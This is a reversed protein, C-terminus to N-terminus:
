PSPKPLALTLVIETGVGPQSRIALTGGVEAMRSRMNSLGNRESFQPDVAVFGIGNDRITVTLVGHDHQMIVHVENARSHKLTNTLAERIVALIHHQSEPGLPIRPMDSCGKFHCSIGSESLLNRVFSEVFSALRDLTGNKPSVTWVVRELEVTLRHVHRELQEVLKERGPPRHDALRQVLLNIGTVSGGLEDHMDRAIRAREQEIARERELATVRAKLRRHSWLRVLWGVALAFLLAIALRVWFLQWWQPLVRIALVTEARNWIGDANCAIIRLRYRGPSLQAYRM